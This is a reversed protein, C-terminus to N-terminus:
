GTSLELTAFCFNCYIGHEELYRYPDIVGWRGRYAESEKRLFLLHKLSSLLITSIGKPIENSSTYVPLCTRCAAICEPDQDWFGAIKEKASPSLNEYIQVADAGGMRLLISKDPYSELLTNMILMKRDNVPRSKELLDLIYASNRMKAQLSPTLDNISYSKCRRRYKEIRSPNYIVSDFLNPGARNETRPVFLERGDTFRLYLYEQDVVGSYGFLEATMPCKKDLIWETVTPSYVDLGEVEVHDRWFLEEDVSGNQILQLILGHFDLYSSMGQVHRPSIGDGVVTTLVHFLSVSVPPASGHDTMYIEYGSSPLYPIYFRFQKDLSACAAKKRSIEHLRNIDHPTMMWSLYPDHTEALLHVFYVTPSDHKMLNCLLDWFLASAPTYAHHYVSTMNQKRFCNWYGGIVRFDYGEEKLSELLISNGEDLTNLSFLDDEIPRKGCLLTKVTPNTNAFVTFMNDFCIGKEKVEDLYPIQSLDDYSIADTWFVIVNTESKKALDAKVDKLLEKIERWSLIYTVPPSAMKSLVEEALVFDRMYLALFYLKELLMQREYASDASHYLSLYHSAEFAVIDRKQLDGGTFAFWDYAPDSTLIHWEDRFFLGNQEFLDYLSIHKVGLIKLSNSLFFRGDFSVILVDDYKLFDANQLPSVDYPYSFAADRGELKKCIIVDIQRTDSIFFRARRGEEEHSVILCIRSGLGRIMGKFYAEAKLMDKYKPYWRDVNYKLIISTIEEDINM